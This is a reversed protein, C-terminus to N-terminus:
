GAPAPAPEPAGAGAGAPNREVQQQYTDTYATWVTSVIGTLENLILSGYEFDARLGNPVPYSNSMPLGLVGGDGGLALFRDLIAGMVEFLQGNPGTYVYGNVFKAYQQGRAAPLPESAAAGLPGDPGGTDAWHRAIANQSVMGLLKATLAALTAIDTQTQPTTQMQPQQTTPAQAQQQPKSSTGSPASIGAAIDRIRDMDAYASDGPCSTNGVDRHAFVIPLRVAEGQAYPTFETGESYMTTYGKPDLGAIKSRWGIFRGIANIAEDSPEESEYNGMLAVGSTNENFGGAHAGQVPRDLGGFRGEFIQGYKDVLANYGIDCWGLTKAHYTYIARVIGASEAPTYDNRGATHHVTLGGLQDDYTPEECRISEDAGWQARSIVHPGGGPLAVAVNDLAGDIAGRGPDILVATLAAATQAPDDSRGTAPTPLMPVAGQADGAVPPRPTTAVAQKRTVLIQVSKTNGVYIPETGTTGGTARDNRRTDVAETDYWPGWTGDTQRARVLAKTDVLDHGTLAVVSFPTDRSIEKVQAGVQGLLELPVAGPSLAPTEPTVDPEVQTPDAIFTAATSRSPQGSTTGHATSPTQGPVTRAPNSGGPATHGSTGQGPTSQDPLSQNPVSQNPLNQSPATQGPLSQASASQGPLSQDPRYQGPLSRGPASQGPDLKPLPIEKPLEVGPPLPLGQPVPISEPIPLMRLDSLHLDPLDLGTLERLPLTIDPVTTLVVEALQAPIAALESGTTSRYDTSDRPTLSALPAAVALATVVPLM